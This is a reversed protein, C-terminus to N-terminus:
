KCGLAHECLTAAGFDRQLYTLLHYLYYPKANIQM